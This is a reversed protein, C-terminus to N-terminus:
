VWRYTFEGALVDGVNWTAPASLTVDTMLGSTGLYNIQALTTSPLDAVAAYRGGGIALSAHGAVVFTHPIAISAVPLSFRPGSMAAGSGIVFAFRVRVLDGEYRWQCSMSGTGLALNTLTPTYTVWPGVSAGSWAGSAVSRQLIGLDLRDVYVPNEASGWTIADREAQSRVPIPGGASVAYPAVWIVSPSGTGSKPVPIQALAMSRAPAAPVAPSAAATGVTYVVAASPTSSGDSEAPDSIQVSLLDIRPNTADAATMAGTKSADFSYTYPGAEAAAEADIVGAHPGVTWTTSTVTVTSTSTGPRVGSRAGLPRAATAGAVFPAVSTQRLARGDYSPAGAVAAVPYVHDVM